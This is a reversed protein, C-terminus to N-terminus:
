GVASPPGDLAVRACRPADALSRLDLQRADRKADELTMPGYVGIRYRRQAGRFRYRLAFVKRGTPAVRIGFGPLEDAAVFYEAARLELADITRKTFKLM